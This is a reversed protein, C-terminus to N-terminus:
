LDIEYNLTFFGSQYITSSYELVDGQINSNQVSVKFGSSKEKVGLLNCEERSLSAMAVSCKVHKPEGFKSQCLQEWLSANRFDINQFNQLYNMNIYSEEIALPIDDGIRLRKLFYCESGEPLALKESINKNCIITKQALVDSRLSKVGISKVYSSFSEVNLINKDIVNRSVITGLAGNRYVYGEKVLESIANRATMRSINCQESLVRESPLKSGKPILGQEIKAILANKVQIYKPVTHDLDTNGLDIIYDM